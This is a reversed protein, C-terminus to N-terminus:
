DTNFCVWSATITTPATKFLSVPSKESTTEVASSQEMYGTSGGRAGDEVSLITKKGLLAGISM